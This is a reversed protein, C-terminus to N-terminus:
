KYKSVNFLFYNSSQVIFQLYFRWIKFLLFEVKLIHLVTLILKIYGYYGNKRVFSDLCVWNVFDRSLLIQTQSSWVSLWLVLLTYYMICIHIRLILTHGTPGSMPVPQSHFIKGNSNQWWHECLYTFHFFCFILIREHTKINNM